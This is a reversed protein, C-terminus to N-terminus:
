GRATDRLQTASLRSVVTSVSPDTSRFARFEAGAEPAPQVQITVENCTTVGLRLLIDSIGPTRM